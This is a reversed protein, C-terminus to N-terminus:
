RERVLGTFGQSTEPQLDPNGAVRYGTTPNEFRLLLEKFEPARFGMGYSARLALIALPQMHLALRPSPYLGFDSDYDLRVGPLM